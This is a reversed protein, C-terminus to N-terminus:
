KVKTKKYLFLFPFFFFLFIYCTLVMNESKNVVHQPYLTCITSGERLRIFPNLHSGHGLRRPAMSGPSGFTQPCYNVVRSFGCILELYIYLNWRKLGFVAPRSTSTSNRKIDRNVLVLGM